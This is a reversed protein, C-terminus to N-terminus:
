SGYRQSIYGSGPPRFVHPGPDLGPGHLMSRGLSLKFSYNLERFAGRFGTKQRRTLYTSM